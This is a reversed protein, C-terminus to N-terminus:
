EANIQCCSPSVIFSLPLIDYIDTDIDHIHTLKVRFCLNSYSNGTTRTIYCLVYFIEATISLFFSKKLGTQDNCKVNTIILEDSPKPPSLCFYGISCRQKITIPQPVRWDDSTVSKVETRGFMGPTQVSKSKWPETTSLVTFGIGPNYITRWFQHSTTQVSM